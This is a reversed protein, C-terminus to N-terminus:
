KVHEQSTLLCDYLTGPPPTGNEKKGYGYNGSLVCDRLEEYALVTSSCPDSDPGTCEVTEFKASLEEVFISEPVVFWNPNVCDENTVVFDTDLHVAATGTGKKKNINGEDFPAIGAIVTRDASQGPAVQNNAPNECQFRVRTITATFVLASPNTDPNPVGKVTIGGELSSVHRVYGGVIVTGALHAEAESGLRALLSVGLIGIMMMRKFM